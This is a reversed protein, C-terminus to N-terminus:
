SAGYVFEPLQKLAEKSAGPLTIKGAGDLHLSQYPVAVLHGGLGLFGGVQLIAFLVRPEDAGVVLDDVTGIREGKDNTVSSGTLKSARYGKALAKVDVVVLQVAQATAREHIGLSAAPALALAVAISVLQKRM